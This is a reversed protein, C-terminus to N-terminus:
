ATSPVSGAVLYLGDSRVPMRSTQPWCMVGARQSASRGSYCGGAPPLRTAAIRLPHHSEKARVKHAGGREESTVDLDVIRSPCKRHPKRPLRM